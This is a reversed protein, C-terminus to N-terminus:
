PSVTPKPQGKVEAKSPSLTTVPVRTPRHSNEPASAHAMRSLLLEGQTAPAMRFAPPVRTGCVSRLTTHGQKRCIHEAM